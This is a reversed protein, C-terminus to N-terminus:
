ASIFSLIVQQLKSTKKMNCINTLDRTSLRTEPNTQKDYIWPHNLCQRMTYRAESSKNMMKMMLDKAEDSIKGFNKHLFSLPM